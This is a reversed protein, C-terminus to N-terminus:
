PHITGILVVSSIPSSRNFSIMFIVPSLLLVAASLLALGALRDRMPARSAALWWIVLLLTAVLPVGGLAVATQINTSAFRSFGYAAGLHALAILVAPWIRLRVCADRHVSRYGIPLNANGSAESQNVQESM